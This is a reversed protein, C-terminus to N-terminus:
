SKDSEEYEKQTIQSGHNLIDTVTVSEATIEVDKNNVRIYAKFGEEQKVTRISISGDTLFVEKETLALEHMSVVPKPEKGEKDIVVDEPTWTFKIYENM